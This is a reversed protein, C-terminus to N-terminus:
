GKHGGVQGNREIATSGERFNTGKLVANKGYKNKISIMAKQLNKEQEERQEDEPNSEKSTDQIDFLSMQCFDLEAAPEKGESFVHNAVVYVRRFLYTKEAIQELLEM